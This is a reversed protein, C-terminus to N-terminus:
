DVAHLIEDAARYGSAMAGHVTGNHGSTDTAEGSFFLTDEVPEALTQQAGECGAKGYSYAGRAFPDSQWDHFYAAEFYNRLTSPSVRLLHALTSLGHEVVFDTSQGSLREGARFPAWGTIIPSPDPMTTWWTPFWEDDSFLFSMNALTKPNEPPAIAEWFRHRFRFVVRIVKGM